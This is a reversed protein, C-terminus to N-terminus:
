SLRKKFYIYYGTLTLNLSLDKNFRKNWGVMFEFGKNQIEGYNTYIDQYGSSARIQRYLLLDKSTRIFYDLGIVLQSGFFAADIGINTQENTEWKLKADKLVPYFGKQVDPNNGLGMAAGPAYYVYMGNVNLGNVSLDTAGGSNGTQGWGLRLKLNDLWNIDKM